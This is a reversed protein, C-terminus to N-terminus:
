ANILYPLISAIEKLFLKGKWGGRSPNAWSALWKGLGQGRLPRQRLPHSQGKGILLRLVLM